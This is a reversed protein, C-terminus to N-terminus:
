IKSKFGLFLFNLLYLNQNNLSSASSAFAYLLINVVNPQQEITGPMIARYSRVKWYPQQPESCVPCM